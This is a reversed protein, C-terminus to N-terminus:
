CPPRGTDPIDQSSRPCTLKPRPYNQRLVSKIRLPTLNSHRLQSISFYYDVIACSSHSCRIWALRFEHYLILWSHIKPTLQGIGRIVVSTTTHMYDVTTCTCYVSTFWSISSNVIQCLIPYFTSYDVSSTLQHIEIHFLLKFLQSIFKLTSCFSPCNVWSNLFSM